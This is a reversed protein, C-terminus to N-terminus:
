AFSTNGLEFEDLRQLLIEAARSAQSPLDFVQALEDRFRESTNEGRDSYYERASRIDSKAAQEIVIPVRNVTWLTGRARRGM